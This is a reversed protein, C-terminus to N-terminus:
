VPRQGQKPQNHLLNGGAAHYVHVASFPSSSFVLCNNDSLLLQADPVSTTCYNFWDRGLKVDYICDVVLHVLCSFIGATTNVAVSKSSGVPRLNLLRAFAPSIFSTPSLCDYCTQVVHGDVTSSFSNMTPAIPFPQSVLSSSLISYFTSRPLISHFMSTHSIYVKIPLTAM